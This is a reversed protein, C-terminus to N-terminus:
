PLRSRRLKLRRDHKEDLVVLLADSMELVSNAIELVPELEVGGVRM